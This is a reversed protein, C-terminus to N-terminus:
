RYNFNNQPSICPFTLELNLTYQLPAEIKLDDVLDYFLQMHSYYSLNLLM